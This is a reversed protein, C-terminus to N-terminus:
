PRMACTTFSFKQFGVGLSIYPYWCSPSSCVKAHIVHTSNHRRCRGRQCRTHKYSIWPGNSYTHSTGSHSLLRLGTTCSMNFLYTTYPLFACNSTLRILVARNPTTSTTRPTTVHQLSTAAVIARAPTITACSTYLLTTADVVITMCLESPREFWDM